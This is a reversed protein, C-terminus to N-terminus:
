EANYFEVSQYQRDDHHLRDAIAATPTELKDEDKNYEEDDNCGSPSLTRKIIVHDDLDRYSTPNKANRKPQVRREVDDQPVVCKKRNPRDSPPTATSPTRGLLGLSALRANNRAVNRMCNLELESIGNIDNLIDDGDDDNNGDNDGDDRPLQTSLSVVAMSLVASRAAPLKQDDRPLQTSLSVVAMSLVAPRAAPLKQDSDDENASLSACPEGRWINVATVLDGDAMKLFRIATTTTMAVGGALPLSLGGHHIVDNNGFPDVGSALKIMEGGSGGMVITKPQPPLWKAELEPAPDSLFLKRQCLSEFKSSAFGAANCYDASYEWSVENLPVGEDDNDDKDGHSDHHSTMARM